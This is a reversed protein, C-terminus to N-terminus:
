RMVRGFTFTFVAGEDGGFGVDMRLVTGSGRYAGVSFGYTTKLDSLNLDRRQSTVKGTDVFVTTDIPGWIPIRYEAQLLLLHRDRFRLSRYGRLTADTGDTGLLYEDVSRLNGKGGLTYQMFFPVDNGATTDTTSVWGHLTLTRYPGLVTFRHKTEVDLRGFDFRDLNQDDYRGYGIRTKGGQYLTGPRGADSTLDVFAHYRGFRPQASGGVDPWFEEVRAGATVWPLVRVTGVTGVLSERLHFLVGDALASNTGPGYYRLSDMDRVRGYATLRTRQTERTTTLATSWYGEVTLLAEASTDWRGLAPFDYGVGAGVGGGSAIGKVVPHLPSTFADAVKTALGSGKADKGEPAPPQQAHGPAASLLLASFTGGILATRWM